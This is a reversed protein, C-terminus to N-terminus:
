VRVRFLPQDFEVPHGDEVLIEVIDGELEAKIENNVKMAEVICVVTDESVSAGTDVYADQDPAPRRYFTGVMPSCIEKLNPDVAPAADAAAEPAAAAAPAGTMPMAHMPMGGMPVMTAQGGTPDAKRLHVREGEREIELEVLSNDNMLQVLKKLERHEM